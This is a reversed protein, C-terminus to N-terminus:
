VRSKLQWVPGSNSTRVVCRRALKTRDLSGNEHLTEVPPEAPGLAFLPGAELGPAGTGVGTGPTTPMLGTTPVGLGEVAEAAAAAKAPPLVLELEVGTTLPLSPPLLPSDVPAITPITTPIITPTIPKTANATNAAARTVRPRRSATDALLKLRNADM